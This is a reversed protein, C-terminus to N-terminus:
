KNEYLFTSLNQALTMLVNIQKVIKLEIENQISLKLEITLQDYNLLLQEFKSYLTKVDNEIFRIPNQISYRFLTEKPNLNSELLAKNTIKSVEVNTLEDIPYNKFLNKINLELSNKENKICFEGFNIFTRNKIKDWASNLLQINNKYTKNQQNEKAPLFNNWMYLSILNYYSYLSNDNLDQDKLKVKSLYDSIDKINMKQDCNAYVWIINLFEM